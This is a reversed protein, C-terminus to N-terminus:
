APSAPSVPKVARVTMLMPYDRDRHDLEKQRMEEWALGHLFSISVLVNGHTEVQVNERPFQEEFLRRASLPTFSWHWYDGWTDGDEHSVPTIGPVTALVVGGPKLVRHLTRIAARLDYILQLTQTLIVCDFAGAPINDGAALDGVITAQPNGESVHLVDSQSVKAGGFRLTYENDGVELVRGKIDASHRELFGEIYYRDIPRGREDGWNRSIPELRRLNGFRVWGVPPRCRWRLVKQRLREHLPAPLTKRALRKLLKVM